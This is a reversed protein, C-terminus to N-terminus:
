SLNFEYMDKKKVHFTFQWVIRQKESNNKTVYHENECFLCAYLDGSNLIVPKDNVYLIGGDEPQSTVINCRLASFGNLPADRHKIVQANKFSVNVVIGFPNFEKTISSDLLKFKKQITKQIELAKEPFILEPSFRSVMQSNLPNVKESLIGNKFKGKNVSDLAFNNLINCDKESLFSKYVQISM